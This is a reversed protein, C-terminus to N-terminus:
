GSGPQPPRTEFAKAAAQIRPIWIAPISSDCLNVLCPSQRLEEESFGFIHLLEHSLVVAASRTYDKPDLRGWGLAVVVWGKTLDLKPETEWECGLIPRQKQQAFLDELSVYEFGVNLFIGVPIDRESYLNWAKPAWDKFKPTMGSLCLPMDPPCAKSAIDECYESEPMFYESGAHRIFFYVGTDAWQVNNMHDVVETLNFPPDLLVPWLFTLGVTIAGTIRLQQRLKTIEEELKAIDTKLKSVDAQTQNL